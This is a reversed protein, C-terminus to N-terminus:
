RQKALDLPDIIMMDALDLVYSRISRALKGESVLQSLETRGIGGKM